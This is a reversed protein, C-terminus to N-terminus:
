YFECPGQGKRCVAMSGFGCNRLVPVASLQDVWIQLKRYIPVYQGVYPLILPGAEFHEINLGIAEIQRRMVWPFRWVHPLHRMNAYGENPGDDGRLLAAITRIAGVPLAFWSRRSIKWYNDGGLLAWSAANMCTPMSIIAVDRTVRRIEGLGHAPHALHELVHMSVVVDFSNDHFPLAEADSQVFQVREGHEAALTQAALINPYSIDTATVIAGRKAALLSFIGEGCGVDLVTQGRRIPRLSQEYIQRQAYRRIWFPSNYRKTFIRDHYADYFDRIRTDLRSHDKSGM